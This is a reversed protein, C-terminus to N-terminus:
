LSRESSREVAVSEWDRIWYLRDALKRGNFKEFREIEPSAM